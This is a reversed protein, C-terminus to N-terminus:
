LLGRIGDWTLKFGVLLLMAYILPYFKAVTIRRVLWIGLVNGVIAVPLLAMSGVLTERTILGLQLYPWLKVINIILFLWALTGAFVAPQLRQPMMYVQAPPAGAHAVFSTLGCWLGWFIGMADPARYPPREALGRLRQVWWNLAFVLAIVGVMLKLGADSISTVTAAGIATGILCGILLVVFSRKDINRRFAWVTVLDQAMLVPLMIAAAVLPPLALAFVPLGLVALGVFGGKSLGFALMAISGYIWFAPSLLLEPM